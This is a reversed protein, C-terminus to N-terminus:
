SVSASVAVGVAAFAAVTAATVAMASYVVVKGGCASGGCTGCGNGGKGFLGCGKGGCASGGCTGCGNGKHLLGGFGCKGCGKGTCSDCLMTSGGVFGNPDVVQSSSVPAVMTRPAPSQNSATVYM